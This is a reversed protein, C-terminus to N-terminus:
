IYLIAMATNLRDPMVHDIDDIFLYVIQIFSKRRIVSWITCEFKLSAPRYCNELQISDDENNKDLLLSLLKNSHM